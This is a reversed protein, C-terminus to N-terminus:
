IEINTNMENNEGCFEVNTFTKFLILWNKVNKEMYGKIIPKSSNGLEGSPYWNGRQTVIRDICKCGLVRKIYNKM